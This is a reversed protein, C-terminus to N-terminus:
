ELIDPIEYVYDPINNLIDELTTAKELMKMSETHPKSYIGKWYYENYEPRNPFALKPKDVSFQANKGNTNGTADVKIWKGNLYIANFCHVCYGKSDDNFLTIHQFCFGTPIKESRLLACLLNSKSHCIGTQYILVDSASVTIIKADIDFSHPISDRVFEFAIKAKDINSNINKFLEKAKTIIIEHSFNIYENEELFLQM